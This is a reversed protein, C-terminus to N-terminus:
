VVLVGAGYTMRKADCVVVLVAILMVDMGEAVKITHFNKFIGNEEIGVIQSKGDSDKVFFSGGGINTEYKIEYEKEDALSKVKAGYTRDFIGSERVKYLRRGTGDVVPRRLNLGTQAVSCLRQGTVADAFELSKNARFYKDGTHFEEVVAHTVYKSLENIKLIIGGQPALHHYGHVPLNFPYLPPFDDVCQM